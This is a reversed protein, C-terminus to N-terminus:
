VNDFEIRAVEEESLVKRKLVRKIQTDDYDWRDQYEYKILVYEITGPKKDLPHMM